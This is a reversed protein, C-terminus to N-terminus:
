VRKISKFIRNMTTNNDRTDKPTVTSVYSFGNQPHMGDAIIKLLKGALEEEGIDILKSIIIYADIKNIKSM